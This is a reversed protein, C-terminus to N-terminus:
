LGIYTQRRSDYEDFAVIQGQHATRYSPTPASLGLVAADVGVWGTNDLNAITGTTTVPEGGAAANVWYKLEGAAGAGIKLDAEFVTATAPLDTTMTSICRYTTGNNCAAIVQLRKAGGAGPVLNVNFIQRRGGAAPFPNQSNATFVQVADTLGFSTLATPDIYARIRFRTENAPTNDQVQALSAASTGLSASMKCETLKLGPTTITLAGGSLVTQSSWAGVPAAASAPCAAMAGGAFGMGALGLVALSLTKMMVNAKM